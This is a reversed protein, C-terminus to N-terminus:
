LLKIDNVFLIVAFACNTFVYALLVLSGKLLPMQAPNLYMGIAGCLCNALVFVELRHASIMDTFALFQDTEDLLTSIVVMLLTHMAGNALTWLFYTLNALKRSPPIVPSLAFFAAMLLITASALILMSKRINTKRLAFAKSVYCGMLFISAFGIASFIGIKNATFLNQTDYTLIYESLGAFSLLYQYTGMILLIVVPVAHMSPLCNAAVLAFPSIALNFFFSWHNGYEAAGIHFHLCVAKILGFFFLPLTGYFVRSLSLKRETRLYKCMVLGSSFLILGVGIDM